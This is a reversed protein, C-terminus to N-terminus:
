NKSLILQRLLEDESKINVIVHQSLSSNRPKVVLPFGLKLGYNYAKKKNLFSKCYAYPFNNKQLYKKLNYKDDILNMDIKHDLEVPM